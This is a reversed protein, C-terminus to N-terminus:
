LILWSYFHRTNLLSLNTASIFIIVRLIFLTTFHNSKRHIMLNRFSYILFFVTGIYGFSFIMEIFTNHPFNLTYVDLTLGFYNLINIERITFIGFFQQFVNLSFYKKLYFEQLETRGTTAANMNGSIVLLIREELRILLEDLVTLQTRLILIFALLAIIALPYLFLKKSFNIKKNLILYLSIMIVNLMMGSMSLTLFLGAYLILLLPTKTKKLFSSNLLFLIGMNVFLAFFNPEHTGSFRVIGGEGSIFNGHLIGWLIAVCVAGSFISFIKQISEDFDSSLIERSIIFIFANILMGIVNFDSFFIFSLGVYMILFILFTIDFPKVTITIKKKFVYHLIKFILIVQLFRFISGIGPVVFVEDFPILFFLLFINEKLPIVLYIGVLFLTVLFSLVTNFGMLLSIVVVSIYIWQSNKKINDM